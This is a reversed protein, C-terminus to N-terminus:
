SEFVARVTADSFFFHTKHKFWGTYLSEIRCGVGIYM